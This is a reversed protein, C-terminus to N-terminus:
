RGDSLPTLPRTRGGSVLVLRGEALRVLTEGGFPERVILEDGERVAPHPLRATGYLLAYGDDKM